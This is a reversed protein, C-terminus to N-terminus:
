VSSSGIMVGDYSSGAIGVSDSLGSCGYVSSIVALCLIIWVMIGSAQSVSAMPTFGYSSGYFIFVMVVGLGVTALIVGLLGSCVSISCSWM